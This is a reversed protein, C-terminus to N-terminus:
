KDDEWYLERPLGTAKGTTVLIKEGQLMAQVTFEYLGLARQLIQAEMLEDIAALQQIKEWFSKSMEVGMTKSTRRVVRM